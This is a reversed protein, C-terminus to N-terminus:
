KGRKKISSNKLKRKRRRTGRGGQNPGGFLWGTKISTGDSSDMHEYSEEVPKDRKGSSNFYYAGGGLLVLSAAGVGIYLGLNNNSM